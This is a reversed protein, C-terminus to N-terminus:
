LPIGALAVALVGGTLAFPAAILIAAASRGSSLAGYLLGLVLLLAVPVIVRLRAMARQQNEFEGGWVFFHGTPPKVAAAVVRQADAVASGLDRGEVNFKLAQYRSNAERNISARGSAVRITALDRLPVHAEGSTPVAVDGIEAASARAPAPLLVRLPVP